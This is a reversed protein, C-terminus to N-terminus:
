TSSATTAVNLAANSGAEAAASGFRTSRSSRAVAFASEPESHPVISATPAASPPRTVAVSPRSVDITTSEAENATEAHSM